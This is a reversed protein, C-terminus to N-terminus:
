SMIVHVPEQFLKQKPIHKSIDSMFKSQRNYVEQYVCLKEMSLKANVVPAVTNQIM